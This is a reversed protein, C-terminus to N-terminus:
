KCPNNKLILKMGERKALPSLRQVNNAVYDSVRQPETRSYQRLVWGIAKQLFFEKKDLSYEMIEKQLSWDMKEKSLLQTLIATRRKWINGSQAWSRLIKATEEPQNLMMRHVGNTAIPDIIEWWAGEIVMKEILANHEPVLWKRFKAHNLIEIAAYWEERRSANTWIFEILSKWQDVNEIRSEKILNSIIKRTEPTKVGWFPMDSKMYSQQYKAREPDSLEEFHSLLKDRFTSNSDSM